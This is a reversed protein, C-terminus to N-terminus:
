AIPLDFSEPRLVKGLMMDLLFSPSQLVLHHKRQQFTRVLTLSIVGQEGDADGVALKILEAGLM